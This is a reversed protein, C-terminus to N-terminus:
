VYQACVGKLFDLTDKPLLHGHSALLPPIYTTACLSAHHVQNNGASRELLSKIQDNSMKSIHPLIKQFHGEAGRYNGADGIQNILFEIALPFDHKLFAPMLTDVVINNPDIRVSQLHAIFGPPTTGDLSLPIIAVGTRFAAVGSEQMCWASQVYNRSLLCVFIDTKAIEELIKLRWEESVSIDEHALFSSVNLQSLVQKLRGAANKDANQYSLFAYRV